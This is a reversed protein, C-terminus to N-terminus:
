KDKTIATMVLTSVDCNPNNIYIVGSKSAEFNIMNDDLTTCGAIRDISTIEQKTYDNLDKIADMRSTIELNAISDRNIILGSTKVKTIKTLSFHESLAMNKILNSISIEVASISSQSNIEGCLNNIFKKINRPPDFVCMIFSNNELKQLIFKFKNYITITQEYSEGLPDTLQQQVTEMEIYTASLKENAMDVDLFGFFLGSEYRCRILISHLSNIELSTKLTLLKLRLSM